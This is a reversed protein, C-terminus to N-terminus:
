IKRKKYSFIYSVFFNRQPVISSVAYFVTVMLPPLSNCFILGLRNYLGESHLLHSGTQLDLGMLGYNRCGVVAKVDLFSLLPCTLGDSRKESERKIFSSIKTFKSISAELRTWYFFSLFILRFLTTESLHLDHESLHLIRARFSTWERTSEGM